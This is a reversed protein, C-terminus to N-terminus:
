LAAAVASAQGDGHTARVLVTASLGGPVTGLDLRHEGRELRVRRRTLTTAIPRRPGGDRWPGTLLDSTRVVVDVDAASGLRVTVGSRGAGRLELREDGEPITGTAVDHVWSEPVGGEPLRFPGTVEYVAGDALPTGGVYPFARQSSFLMRTGTPDFVVGAVESGEHDDGTFRAFPSVEGDPTILCIEMNGGDECVFVDGGPSVTLNDVADLAQEPTAKHDYIKETRAAAIDYSWVRRDIKTSFYITGEFHWLGEGGNFTAAGPVQNRTQRGQTVLNPDPVRLWTTSGDAAVKAAELVGTTLSGKQAPVFRYFLGAGQDETLYVIGTAPDVAAAEHPFNGLAPRAQQPARGLPHAEWIMGGEHEEGSLWTGWPTPGGGCNLNTGSLVRQAGIVKGAADFTLSSSGGGLPAPAESNSVVVYGGGPLRYAAQGDSAFHWPYSTGPVVQGGRAVLRSTFGAPLQLADANPALLPGYPGDGARTTSALAARLFGPAFLTAGAALSGGLFARRDLPALPAM